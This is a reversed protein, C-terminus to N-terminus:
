LGFAKRLVRGKYWKYIYFLTPSPVLQINLGLYPVLFLGGILIVFFLGLFIWDRFLFLMISGAYANIGYALGSLILTLLGIIVLLDHIGSRLALVSFLILLFGLIFSYVAVRTLLNSLKWAIGALKGFEKEIGPVLPDDLGFLHGLNM